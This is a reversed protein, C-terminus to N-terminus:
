SFAKKPQFSMIVDNDSTMAISSNNPEFADGTVVIFLSKQKANEHECKFVM